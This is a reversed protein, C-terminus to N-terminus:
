LRVATAVPRAAIAVGAGHGPEECPRHSSAMSLRLTIPTSLTGVDRADECVSDDATTHWVTHWPGTPPGDIPLWRL